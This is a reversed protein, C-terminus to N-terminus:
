NEVGAGADASEPCLQRWFGATDVDEQRMEM